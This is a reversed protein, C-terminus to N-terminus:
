KKNFGETAASSQHFFVGEKNGFILKQEVKQFQLDAWRKYIHDKLGDPIGVCIKTSSLECSFNKINVTMSIQHMERMFSQLAISQSEILRRENNQREFTQGSIAINKKEELDIQNLPSNKSNFKRRQFTSNPKVSNAVADLELESTAKGKSEEESFTLDKSSELNLKINSESVTVVAFKEIKKESEIIALDHRDIWVSIPQSNLASSKKAFRDPLNQSLWYVHFIFSLVIPWFLPSNRFKSLFLPLRLQRKIVTRYM